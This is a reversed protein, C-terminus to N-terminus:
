VKKKPLISIEVKSDPRLRPDKITVITSNWEYLTSLEGDIKLVLNRQRMRGEGVDFSTRVQELTEYELLISSFDESMCKVNIKGNVEDFFSECGGKQTDTSGM